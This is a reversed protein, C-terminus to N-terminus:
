GAGKTRGALSMDALYDASFKIQSDRSRDTKNDLTAKDKMSITVTVVIASVRRARSRPFSGHTM